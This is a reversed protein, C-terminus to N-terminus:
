VVEVGASAIRRIGYATRLEEIQKEFGRCYVRRAGRESGALFEGVCKGDVEEKVIETILWLDVEEKYFYQKPEMQELFVDELVQGDQFALVGNVELRGGWASAVEQLMDMPNGRIPRPRWNPAALTSPGNDIVFRRNVTSLATHANISLQLEKLYEHYTLSHVPHVRHNLIKELQRHTLHTGGMISKATLTISSLRGDRAWSNLINLNHGFTLRGAFTKEFILDIDLEVSQVHATIAPAILHGITGERAPHLISSLYLTNHAWLLYKTEAYIQKCTRLFSLRIQDGGDSTPPLIRYRTNSDSSQSSTKLLEIRSKPTTFLYTYIQTRLELPLNLLFSSPM